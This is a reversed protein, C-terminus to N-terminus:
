EPLLNLLREQLVKRAEYIDFTIDRRLLPVIDQRFGSNAMREDLAHVFDRRKPVAGEQSLYHQFSGIVAQPDVAPNANLLAWYLDFIDRGKVRQFLARMKTGLLEALDYGIIQVAHHEDRFDFEFGNQQIPRFPQRENVNAEIKITLPNIAAAPPVVYNIRLIRSPQFRNRLTLFVKDWSFGKPRGLVEELVRVLGKEIHGEPRDGVVVLDIDESYRAAPPMCVKHLLTGGRMAVQSRLFKDQFISKM